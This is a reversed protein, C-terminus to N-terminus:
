GIYVVIIFLTIDGVSAVNWDPNRSRSVIACLILLDYTPCERKMSDHYGYLHPSYRYFWGQLTFRPKCRVSATKIM